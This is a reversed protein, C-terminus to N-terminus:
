PDPEDTLTTKSHNLTGIKSKSKSGNSEERIIVISFSILILIMVADITRKACWCSWPGEATMKEENKREFVCQCEM